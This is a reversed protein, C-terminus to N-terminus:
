SEEEKSGQAGPYSGAGAEIVNKGSEDAPLGRKELLDV